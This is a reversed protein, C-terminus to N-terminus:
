GDGLEKVDPKDLEAIRAALRKNEDRMNILAIEAKKRRVAEEAFAQVLADVDTMAAM